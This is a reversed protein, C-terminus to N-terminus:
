RLGRLLDAFQDLSGNNVQGIIQDGSSTKGTMIDILREEPNEDRLSVSQILSQMGSIDMSTGASRLASIVSGCTADSVDKSGAIATDKVDGNELIVVDKVLLPHDIKNHVRDWELNKMEFLLYDHRYCQWRGELVLNRFDVYVDIPKDVSFYEAKIGAKSLLQLSDEAALKLDSTYKAINFGLSKLDLVFRRIKHLPIVDGPKAKVRLILETTIIPERFTRFAGDDQQRVIEKWGNQCSMALGLADGSFAIDCHIYRPTGKPITIKSFDIFNHLEILDDNLGIDITQVTLPDPKNNFCALISQTNPFLKTQRMANVSIGGIDRLSKILDM